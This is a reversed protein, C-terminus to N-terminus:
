VPAEVCLIGFRLEIKGKGGLGMEGRILYCFEVIQRCVISQHKM